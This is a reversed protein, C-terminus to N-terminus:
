RSLILRNGAIEIRAFRQLYGMGLLSERMEGENVVASVRRDEFPGVVVHDLTVRALGVEGNATRARGLYALRDPNLGVRQADQQSLVLDTAGTDVVFRVEADNIMVPLYFHGDPARRVEIQGGDTAVSLQSTPRMDQWLGYGAVAGVFILGWLAALRVVQGMRDRHAILFYGGIAAILLLLFIVRPLNDLVM